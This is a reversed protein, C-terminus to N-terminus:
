QINIAIFSAREQLLTQKLKVSHFVLQMRFSLQRVNLEVWNLMGNMHTHHSVQQVTYM